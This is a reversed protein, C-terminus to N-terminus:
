DWYTGDNGNRYYITGNEVLIDNTVNPLLQKAKEIYNVLKNKSSEM